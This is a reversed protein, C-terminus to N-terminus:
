VFLTQPIDTTRLRTDFAPPGRIKVGSVTGPVGSVGSDRNTQNTHDTTGGRGTEVGPAATTLSAPSSPVMVKNGRGGSGGSPNASGDGAGLGTRRQRCLNPSAKRPSLSPM